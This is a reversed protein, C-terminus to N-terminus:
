GEGLDALEVVGIGAIAVAACAALAKVYSGVRSM